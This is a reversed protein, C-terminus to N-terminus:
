KKRRVYMGDFGSKWSKGEDTSTEFLQRVSDPSIPFFTLKQLTRNGKADLTVGQFRMAGDVFDGTYDLVGGGDDTWVQRWKRTNPDFYNMSKGEGGGTATWNEQLVCGGLMPIVDNTGVKTGSIWVDWSGAWYDLLRSEPRKRCPYRQDEIMAVVNRFRADDAIKAFDAQQTVLAPQGFGTKALNELAAIASDTQGKVGFIRAMRMWASPVQFNLAVAHRFARAADDYRALAQSAVGTRFWAMANLSDRKVIASYADAVKPWDSAKFYADAQAVPDLTQAHLSHPMSLGALALLVLHRRM